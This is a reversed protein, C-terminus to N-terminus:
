NLQSFNFHLIFYFVVFFNFYHLAFIVLLLLLLNVAILHLKLKALLYTESEVFEEGMNPPYTADWEVTDDDQLVVM